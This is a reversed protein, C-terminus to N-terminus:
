GALIRPYSETWERLVKLFSLTVPPIDGNRPHAVGIPRLTFKTKLHAAVDQGEAIASVFASPVM